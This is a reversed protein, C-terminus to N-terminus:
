CAWVRGLFRAPPLSSGSSLPSVLGFCVSAQLWLASVAASTAAHGRDAFRALWLQAILATVFSAGSILGLGQTSLDYRTELEALLAFVSSVGAMTVAATVYLGRLGRM